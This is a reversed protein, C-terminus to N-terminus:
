HSSVATGGNEFLHDNVMISLVQFPDRLDGDSEDVLQPCSVFKPPFVPSLQQAATIYLSQFVSNLFYRNANLWIELQKQM